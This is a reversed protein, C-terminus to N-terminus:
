RLREAPVYDGMRLKRNIEELRIQVITLLIHIQTIILNFSDFIHVYTYICTISVFITIQKNKVLNQYHRLYVLFISRKIMIEGVAEEKEKAKLDMMRAVMPIM